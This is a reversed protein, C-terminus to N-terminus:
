GLRAKTVTKVESRKKASIGLRVHQCCFGLAHPFEEFATLAPAARESPNIQFMSHRLFSATGSHRMSGHGAKLMKHTDLM